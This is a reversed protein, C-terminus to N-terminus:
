RYKTTPFFQIHGYLFFLKIIVYKSMINPPLYFWSSTNSLHNVYSLVNESWWFLPCVYIYIQKQKTRSNSICAQSSIEFCILYLRNLRCAAGFKKNQLKRKKCPNMMRRKRGEEGEERQESTPTTGGERSGKKEKKKEELCKTDHRGSKLSSCRIAKLTPM